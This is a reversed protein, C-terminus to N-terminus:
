TKWLHPPEVIHDDVSIIPPIETRNAASTDTPVTDSTMMDQDLDGVTESPRDSELARRVAEAM